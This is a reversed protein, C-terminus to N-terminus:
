WWGEFGCEENKCSYFGLEDQEVESSDCVPCYVEGCPCKERGTSGRDYEKGCGPCKVIM